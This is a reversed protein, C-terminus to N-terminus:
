IGYKMMPIKVGYNEDNSERDNENEALEGDMKQWAKGYTSGPPVNARRSWPPRSPSPSWPAM